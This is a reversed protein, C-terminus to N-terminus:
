RLFALRQTRSQGASELRVLYVGPGVPRRRHRRGGRMGEVVGEPGRQRRPLRVERVLEGAALVNERLVDKDPLAYFEALPLTRDGRPSAIVITAEVTIM